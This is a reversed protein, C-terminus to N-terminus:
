MLNQVKSFPWDIRSTSAPLPSVIEKVINTPLSETFKIPLPIVPDIFPSASSQVPGPVSREDSGIGQTNYMSTNNNGIISNVMSSALLTSPNTSPLSLSSGGTMFPNSLPDDELPMATFGTFRATSQPIIITPTIIIPVPVPLLTSSAPANTLSINVPIKGSLTPIIDPRNLPIPFAPFTDKEREVNWGSDGLVPNEPSTSRLSLSGLAVAAKSPSEDDFATYSEDFSPYNDSGSCYNMDEDLGTLFRRSMAVAGEHTEEASGSTMSIIPTASGTGGDLERDFEYTMGMEFATPVATVNSSNTNSTTVTGIDNVVDTSSPTYIPDGPENTVPRASTTDADNIPIANLNPITNNLLATNASTTATITSAVTDTSPISIPSQSSTPVFVPATLTLTSTQGFVFPTATASLTTTSPTGTGPPRPPNSPGGPPFRTGSAGIPATVSLPRPGNGTLITNAGLASDQGGPGVRSSPGPIPHPPQGGSGGGVNGTSHAYLRQLQLQERAQMAERANMQGGPPVQGPGQGLGLHPPYGQPGFEGPVTRPPWPGPGQGPPGGPHSRQPNFGGQPPMGQGPGVQPGLHPSNHPSFERNGDPPFDSGPFKSSSVPKRKSSNLASTLDELCKIAGDIQVTTGVLEVANVSAIM